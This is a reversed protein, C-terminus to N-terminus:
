RTRGALGFYAFVFMWLMAGVSYKIAAPIVAKSSWFAELLAALVLMVIVGLILPLTQQARDQLARARGAVGPAILADGLVIGAAGSIVIATLEPAGHGIVFSFFPQDFGANLMHASAAGLVVGNLVLFVFSGVAFVIGAAFTRFAVGINNAIYFGFMEMDAEADRLSGIRGEPDPDYMSEFGRVTEADFVSYVLEPATLVAVCTAAAPLWFAAIALGLAGRHRRVARPFDRSLLTLFQRAYDTSRWYLHRHGAAALDNLQAVLGASYRRRTAVALDRCVERYRAPFDGLSDTDASAAKSAASDTQRRKRLKRLRRAIGALDGKPELVEIQREFAQWRARHKQEFAAQKM